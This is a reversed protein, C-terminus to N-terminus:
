EGLEALLDDDSLTSLSADSSMGLFELEAALEREDQKVWVARLEREKTTKAESLRAKERSLREHIAVLHSTDRM